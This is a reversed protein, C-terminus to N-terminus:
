VRKSYLVVSTELSSTSKELVNKIIPCDEFTEVSRFQQESPIQFQARLVEGTELTNISVFPSSSTPLVYRLDFLNM